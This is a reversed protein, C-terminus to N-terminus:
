DFIAKNGDLSLQYLMLSKDLHTVTQMKLAKHEM